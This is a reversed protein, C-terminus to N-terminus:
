IHETYLLFVFKPTAARGGWTRALTLEWVKQPRNSEKRLVTGNFEKKYYLSKTKNDFTFFGSIKTSKPRRPPYKCVIDDQQGPDMLLTLHGVM